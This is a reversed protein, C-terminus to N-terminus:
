EHAFGFCGKYTILLTSKHSSLKNRLQVVQKTNVLKLLMHSVSNLPLEPWKLHNPSLLLTLCLLVEAIQIM